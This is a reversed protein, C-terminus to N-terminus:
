AKIAEDLKRKANDLNIQAQTIEEQAAKIAKEKATEKIIPTYEGAYTYSWHTFDDLTSRTAESGTSMGYTRFSQRDARIILRIIADGDGKLFMGVELDEIAKVQKAVQKVVPLDEEKSICECRSSNMVMWREEREWWVQGFESGDEKYWERLNTNPHNKNRHTAGEPAKSWDVGSKGIMNTM